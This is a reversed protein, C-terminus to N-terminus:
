RLKKSAAPRGRRPPKQCRPCFHSSRSGIRVRKVPTGCVACAEGERGYVRHMTQFRGRRGRGDVYDRLSSGGAAIAQRLVKRLSRHLSALAERGLESARRAPHIRADFLAEDAYINGVGAVVEQNLLLSKIGAQRGELRRAFEAPEMELPEPGLSAIERCSEAEGRKLCLMFGFKRVDRFRLEPGGDAFRIVLRLHKDPPGGPAAIFLQGTMKLHFVLRSGDEFEIVAMKGRRSIGSVRLGALGSLDRDSGRRLLPKWILSIGSVSRGLLVPRLTRVVTEVEPLEPM